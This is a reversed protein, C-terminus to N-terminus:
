EGGDAHPAPGRVAVSRQVATREGSSDTVTLEVKYSGPSRYTHQGSTNGSGNRENVTAEDSGGDGWTWTAKHTDRLDADKFAASFSLLAQARPKENVQIPGIVPAAHGSGATPVLLVLGTNGAAVISGNDSIAHGASLVLGEPADALRTNLDIVGQARTWLYARGDFSGVVQGLNNLGLALTIIDPRGAGIETRGTERTWVYGHPFDIFDRDNLIVMDQKNIKLALTRNPIGDGLDVLGERPTWLFAHPPQSPNEGAATGVVHGSANMDSVTNFDSYFSTLAQMGDQRTWRFVNLSNGGTMGAVIGADNILQGYASTDITGIDALGTRPRWVFARRNPDQAPEFVVGGTVEGKNNIDNGTSEGRRPGTLDVMGTQASWRYAHTLAAGPALTASGVVQGFDNVAVATASGGGLSGLNRVVHGDYFMARRRLDDVAETFVVQGRANIDIGFIGQASSLPIVRYSAQVQRASPNDDAVAGAASLLLITSSLWRRWGSHRLVPPASTAQM